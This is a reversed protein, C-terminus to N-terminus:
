IMNGDRSELMLKQLRPSEINLVENSLVKNNDLEDSLKSDISEVSMRFTRLLYCSDALIKLLLLISMTGFFSFSIYAQNKFALFSVIALGVLLLEPLISLSLRQKIKFFQKGMGHEEVTFLARASIFPGIKYELDWRDYDGGNKVKLKKKLLEKKLNFQMESLEQWKESWVSVMQPFISFSNLYKLNALSGRSPNLGYKIRGKLRALPQIFHMYTTIAFGKLKQNSPISKNKKIAKAASLASQFFVIGLMFLFVPFAIGFLPLEFGFISVIGFFGIIFFYEPMLSISNWSNYSDNYVSQFLASGQSGYFIKRKRPYFSKTLGSGYIHGRWSLHGLSNYKEPWKKELLAEAKGYGEQQKWYMRLSSRRHHWVFASHHFGIEYGKEQIRWCIDVDDGAARFVEDFGGIEMLVSKKFSMNCGPIHEAVEDDLLVHCPGGPSNAVCQSTLEAKKPPLNHGGVGAFNSDLYTSALYTLWKPDPYADDDIYAIIEGNSAYMGTNRANSLGRNETSILHVDFESAIEATNDKSGDNVVIVEYNPYELKKLGELTDRITRSGNYSCVVISILPFDASGKYPMEEFATKVSELAPKPIRERDVLGFDWDDIPLGGRWWDDTWSFVFCGACGKEFIKRIQWDLTVAQRELGNRMSDLGIESLLLPKDEALNHLKALYRTLKEENELFVNFCYFDLFSLDLYETTPYNVYTVLSNPDTKKVTKYLKKLFASIRKDGYWRVINSPIENGIAYAFIAPHHNCDIINQRVRNVIDNEQEKTDLFTLHQEWPMGIMMKLNHKLAIDLIKLPPVTYTRVTNIGNKSMLLFDKEVIELPPFLDGSENPEFTGYTVGKIYIRSEKLNFFKGDISPRDILEKVEIM